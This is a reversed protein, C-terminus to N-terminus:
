EGRRSLLFGIVVAAVVLWFAPKATTETVRQATTPPLVEDVKQEAQTLWDLAQERAFRQAADGVDTKLDDFTSPRTATPLGEAAEMAKDTPTGIGAALRLRRTWPLGM